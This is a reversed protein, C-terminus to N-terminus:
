FNDADYALSIGTSWIRDSDVIPSDTIESGLIEVGINGALLWKDSLVNGWNLKVAVDTTAGAQYIPRTATAEPATVSYYYDAYDGSQRIVEVSPVFYGCSWERPLSFALQSILGDHRNTAEIYTTWNVHVPWGRWGITPGVELAWKRDSIGLLEINEAKELVV